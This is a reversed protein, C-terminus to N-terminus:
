RGRYLPFPAPWFSGRKAGGELLWDVYCVAILDLDSGVLRCRIGTM